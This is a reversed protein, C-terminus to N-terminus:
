SCLLDPCSLFLLQQSTVNAVEHKVCSAMKAKQNSYLDKPPSNHTWISFLDIINVPFASDKFFNERDGLACAGVYLNNYDPTYTSPFVRVRLVM